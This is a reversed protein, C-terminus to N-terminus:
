NEIRLEGGNEMSNIGAQEQRSKISQLLKDNGPMSTNELVDEVTIKGGADGGALQYIQLMWDNMVMRYAPTATSEALALSFKIDRVQEPNYIFGDGRMGFPNIYKRETYYQQVLQLNKMDRSERLGKYQELLEVLSTSANQTQQLYLSAPTGSKPAQGQLAGQVGSVDELMKQQFNIMETLGTDNASTNIQQPIIMQGSTNVKAEIVGNPKSWERKYDDADYGEPRHDAEPIVLLSKASLRIQMDKAMINRNISRQQDIFDSVFPNTVYFSYPHEEHWFPTEGEALIEGTPTLYYYYWYNDINWKYEILRFNQPEVGQDTWMAIRRENEADLKGQEELEAKVYKGTLTDHVTLREKSEKRWVKIVRCLGNLIDGTLFFDEQYNADPIFQRYFNSMYEKNSCNGYLQRIWLAREKSGKSFFQMIDYIGLDVIEGVMTCDMNRPDRTNTDFFFRSPEVADTWVDSLGTRETYTSRFVAIGDIMFRQFNHRDLEKLKNNQYVYQITASMVEGEQQKNPERAICVPETQGQILLGTVSRVIGRIRNNQLPINGQRYIYERETIYEGTDPDRIVDGFQDGFTYRNNREARQRFSYLASYANHAERLVEDARKGMDDTEKATDIKKKMDEERVQPYLREALHIDIAM